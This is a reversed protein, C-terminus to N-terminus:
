QRNESCSPGGSIVDGRPMKAIADQQRRDRSSHHRVNEVAPLRFVVNAGERWCSEPSLPAPSSERAARELQALSFLPVAPEATARCAPQALAISTRKRPSEIRERAHRGLDCFPIMM